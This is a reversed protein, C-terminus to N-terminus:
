ITAFRQLAPAGGALKRHALSACARCNPAHARSEIACFAVNFLLAGGEFLRQSQAIENQRLNQKDDARAPDASGRFESLRMEEEPQECNQEEVNRLRTTTM